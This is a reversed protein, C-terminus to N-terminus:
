AGARRGLWFGITLGVVAVAVAMLGTPNVSSFMDVTMDKAMTAVFETESPPTYAIEEGDGDSARRAQLSQNLSELGQRTMSKSVSEIM